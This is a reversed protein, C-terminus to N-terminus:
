PLRWIFSVNDTFAKYRNGTDRAALGFKALATVVSPVRGKAAAAACIVPLPVSWISLGFLGDAAPAVAFRQLGILCLFETWVRATLAQGIKDPSYGIDQATGARGSDFSLPAVPAGDSQRRIVTEFAFLDDAVEPKLSNKIEKAIEAVEQKGAWTKLDDGGCADNLWWDVRMNFPSDLTFGSFIRLSNLRKREAEEFKPLVKGRRKLDHQKQVLAQLRASDEPPITPKLPCSIIEKLLEDLTKRPDATGMCFQTQGFWGEAGPWLRDALELLGCCAFFQGPNTLDVPIIINPTPNTM